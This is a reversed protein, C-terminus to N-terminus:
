ERRRYATPASGTMRKFAKSFAFSSTYGVKHAVEEVTLNVDDSLWTTALQVRWRTLYKMPSEGVTLTFRESFFSRSLGTSQALVELTWPHDPHAHIANLAKGIYPDYLAGLWGGGGETHQDIWSRMVMIFLIDMLRSVVAESGPRGSYFESQIGPLATALWYVPKGGQNPIHILPPLLSFLPTVINHETRFEGSILTTLGVPQPGNETSRAPNHRIEYHRTNTVVLLDGTAMLRPENEAGMQLSCSGSEVLHWAASHSASGERQWPATLAHREFMQPQLRIAHLIQKLADM